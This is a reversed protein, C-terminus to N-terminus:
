FIKPIFIISGIIAAAIASVLVAAAALDKVLGAKPHIEPSLLDTLSEISTNLLEMSIVLGIAFILMIWETVSIATIIGLVVVIVALVLHIRGNPQTKLFYATGKFAYKFSLLRGLLGKWNKSNVRM